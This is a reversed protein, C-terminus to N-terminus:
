GTWSAIGAWLVVPARDLSGVIPSEGQAASLIEITAIEVVQARCAKLDACLSACVISLTNSSAEYAALACPM